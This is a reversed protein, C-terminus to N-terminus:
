SVYDKAGFVKPAKVVGSNDLDFVQRLTATLQSIDGRLAAVETEINKVREPM